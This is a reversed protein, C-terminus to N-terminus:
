LNSLPSNASRMTAKRASFLRCVEADHTIILITKSKDKIYEIATNRNNEDIGKFAEDLLLLDHPYLLARLIAVRRRQGGSLTAVDQNIDQLSLNLKRCEKILQEESISDGLVFRLNDLASFGDLLRDEQFVCSIKKFPNIIEGSDPKILGLIINILTTKGVGSEGMLCIIEGANISLSFNEVAKKDGFSKYISKLEM